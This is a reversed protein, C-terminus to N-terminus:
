TANAPAVIKRGHPLNAKFTDLIHDAPTSRARGTRDRRRSIRRVRALNTAAPHNARRRRPRSRPVVPSRRPRRRSTASTEVRELRDSAPLRRCGRGSRERARYGPTGLVQRLRYRRRKVFRCQHRQRHSAGSTSRGHINCGCPASAPHQRQPHLLPLVPTAISRRISSSASRDRSLRWLEPSGRRYVPCTDPLRRVSPSSRTGTTPWAWVGAPRQGGARHVQAMACGPLAVDVTRDRRLANRSM